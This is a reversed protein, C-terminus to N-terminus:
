IRKRLLNMFEYNKLGWKPAIVMDPPSQSTFREVVIDDRLRKVFEACFDLYDEAKWLEVDLRGEKYERGFLSDEIIQLQHLKILSVPLESVEDSVRLMEERTEGPLGMIFHLGVEIGRDALRRITAKTCDWTHGRNIVKLTKDYISEAGLEVCVYRERAIESIGDLLDDAICDPRTGIVLGVVDDCSLAERYQALLRETNGYTNTYSQFYALYVMDPYKKRFFEKGERIQQSVSKESDCYGPSFSKNNCFACGGVGISGDRNPCSAGINISLKQVKRGIKEKIYQNYEKM